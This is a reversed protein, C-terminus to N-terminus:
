DTSGPELEAIDDGVGPAQEWEIEPMIDLGIAVRLRVLALYYSIKSSVLSSESQRLDDQADLLDRNTALGEEVM